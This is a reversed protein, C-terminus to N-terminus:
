PVVATASTRPRSARLGARATGHSAPVAASSPKGGNLRNKESTPTTTAPQVFPMATAMDTASARNSTAEAASARRVREIDNPVPARVRRLPTSPTSPTATLGITGASRDDCPGQSGTASARPDVATTPNADPGTPESSRRAAATSPPQDHGPGVA